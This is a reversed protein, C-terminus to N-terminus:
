RHRKELFRRAAQASEADMFDYIERGHLEEPSRGLMDALARNVFTTRSDTDLLWIGEVATEVIRRYRAESARLAAEREAREAALAEENHKQETLDTAIVCLVHGGDMEVRSVSLLVPVSSASER